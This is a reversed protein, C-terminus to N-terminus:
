NLNKKKLTISLKKPIQQVVLIALQLSILLRAITIGALTLLSVKTFLQKLQEEINNDKQDPKKEPKKEPKQHGKHDSGGGDGKKNKGHGKGPNDKGRKALLRQEYNMLVNSSIILFIASFGIIIGIRQYLSLSLNMEENGLYYLYNDPKGDLM